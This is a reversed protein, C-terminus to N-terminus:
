VYNDILEYNYIYFCVPGAIGMIILLVQTIVKGVKLWGSHPGNLGPNYRFGDQDSVFGFSGTVGQYTVNFYSRKRFGTDLYRSGDILIEHHYEEWPVMSSPMEQGLLSITEVKDTHSDVRDWSWYSGKCTSCSTGGNVTRCNCSYTYTHERYEEKVEQILLYKGPLNSNTLLPSVAKIEGSAYLGGQQTKVSYPFETANEETFKLAKTWADDASIIAKNFASGVLLSLLISVCFISVSILVVNRNNLIPAFAM